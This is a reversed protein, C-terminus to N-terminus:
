RSLLRFNKELQEPKTHAKTWIQSEFSDHKTAVCLVLLTQPSKEACFFFFEQKLLSKDLFVIFDVNLYILPAYFHVYM